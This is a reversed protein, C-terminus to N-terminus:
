RPCLARKAQDYDYKVIRYEDDGVWIARDLLTRLAESVTRIPSLGCKGHQGGKHGQYALSNRFVEGCVVCPTAKDGASVRSRKCDACKNGVFRTKRRCNRCWYRVSMARPTTM